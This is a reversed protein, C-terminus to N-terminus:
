CAQRIGARQTAATIFDAWLLDWQGIHDQFVAVLLDGMRGRRHFRLTELYYLLGPLMREQPILDRTHDKCPANQTAKISDNFGQRQKHAAPRFAAISCNRWLLRETLPKFGII